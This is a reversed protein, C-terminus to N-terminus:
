LKAPKGSEENRHRTPKTHKLLQEITYTKLKGHRIMEVRSFGIEEIKHWLLSMGEDWCGLGSFLYITDDNSANQVGTVVAEYEPHDTGNPHVLRFPYVIGNPSREFECTVGWSEGTM